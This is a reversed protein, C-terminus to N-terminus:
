IFILISNWWVSSFRWKLQTKMFKMKLRQARWRALTFIVNFLKRSGESASYITSISLFINYYFLIFFFLSSLPFITHSKQRFTEEAFVCASKSHIIFYYLKLSIMSFLKIKSTSLVQQQYRASPWTASVNGGARCYSKSKKSLERVGPGHPM